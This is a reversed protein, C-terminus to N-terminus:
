TRNKRLNPIKYGFNIKETANEFHYKIENRQSKM